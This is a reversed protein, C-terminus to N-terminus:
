EWGGYLSRFLFPTLLRCPLFGPLFPPTYSTCASYPLGLRGCDGFVCGTGGRLATAPDAPPLFHSSRSQGVQSVRRGRRRRPGEPVRAARAEQVRLELRHARWQLHRPHRRRGARVMLTASGRTTPRPRPGQPERAGQAGRRQHVCGCCRVDYDPVHASSAFPRPSPARL